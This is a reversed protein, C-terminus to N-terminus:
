KENPIGTAKKMDSRLVSYLFALDVQDITQTVAVTAVLELEASVVTNEAIV